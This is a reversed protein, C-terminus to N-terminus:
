KVDIIKLEGAFMAHTEHEVPRTLRIRSIGLRIGGSNPSLRDTEEVYDTDLLSVMDTLIVDGLSKEFGIDVVIDESVRWLAL